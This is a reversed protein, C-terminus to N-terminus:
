PPGSEKMMKFVEVDDIEAALMMPTYGKIPKVHEANPSAGYELLIKAIERLDNLNYGSQTQEFFRDEVMSMVAELESSHKVKNILKKPKKLNAITCLCIYLATHMEVGGKRDVIAGMELLQKVIYPKGTEVACILPLLKKKSTLMNVTKQDHEIASIIQFCDDNLHATLETVNMQQVAMLIPTEGAESWCNVDAGAEILKRVSDIKNAQILGILHRTSKKRGHGIKTTRDKDRLNPEKIDDFAMLVPGTNRTKRLITVGEFLASDPFLRDFDCAWKEVEWDEVTHSTSGSKKNNISFEDEENATAFGLAIGNLKLHKMMPRKNAQAAVAIAEKYIAQQGAGSKYLSQNFADQYLATAKKIDGSYVHWRAEAWQKFSAQEGEPDYQKSLKTFENLIERAELASCQAEPIHTLLLQGVREHASTLEGYCILYAQLEQQFTKATNQPAINSSCFLQDTFKLGQKGNETAKFSDICRATLFLVKFIQWNSDAISQPESQIEWSDINAISTSSPLDKGSSWRDIQYRKEKELSTYFEGWGQIDNELWQILGGMATSDPSLFKTLSIGPINGCVSMLLDAAMVSFVHQNLLPLAHSRPMGHLSCTTVVNMYKDLYDNIHRCIMSASRQDIIKSLPKEIGNKLIIERCLSETEGYRVYDDFDTNAAKINLATAIARLIEAQSPYPTAPAKKPM